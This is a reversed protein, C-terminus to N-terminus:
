KPDILDEAYTSKFQYKSGEGRHEPIDREVKARVSRVRGNAADFWVDGEFLLPLLPLRDAPTEPMTKITSKYGVVTLGGSVGKLVCTQVADYSEGTGQPPDFKIAYDRTWPQGAIPMANPLTIKFPLDCELRSAPGFKSEKVEVVKGHGDIRVVTLPPGIYKAMEDRLQESSEKPKESDFLMPAGSPPKTEMRLKALTMQLTAVGNADVALVQWRKVLDLQTTVTAVSPEKGALTEIATTSQAVRYTLTQGTKWQFRPEAAPAAAVSFALIALTLRPAM